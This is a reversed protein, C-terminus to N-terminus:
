CPCFGFRIEWLVSSTLSVLIESLLDLRFRGFDRVLYLGFRGFNRIVLCYFMCAVLRSKGPAFAAPCPVAVKASCPQFILSFM